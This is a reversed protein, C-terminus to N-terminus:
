IPASSSILGRAPSQMRTLALMAVTYIGGGILLTASFGLHMVIMTTVTAGLVSAGGNLSWMWPILRSEPGLLRLGSPFFLGLLLGLPAIVIAVVLSRLVVQWGVTAALLPTLVFYYILVLV